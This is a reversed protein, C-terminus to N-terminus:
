LDRIREISSVKMGTYSLNETIQQVLTGASFRKTVVQTVLTSTYAILLELIKQTKASSTWTTIRTIFLGTYAVEDFSAGIVDHALTSLADHAAPDLGGGGGLLESLKKPGAVPDKLILNNDVDREVGVLLDPTSSTQPYFGHAAVVDVAPDLPQEYGEEENNFEPLVINRAM